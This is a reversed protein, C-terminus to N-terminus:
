RTANLYEIAVHIRRTSPNDISVGPQPMVGNGLLGHTITEHDRVYVETGTGEFM